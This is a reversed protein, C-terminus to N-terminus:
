ANRADLERQVIAREEELKRVVLDRFKDLHKFKAEKIGNDIADIWQVLQERTMKVAFQHIMGHGKM